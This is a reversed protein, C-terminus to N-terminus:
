RRTRLKRLDVENGRPEASLHERAHFDAQVAKRREQMAMEYETALQAQVFSPLLMLKKLKKQLNTM